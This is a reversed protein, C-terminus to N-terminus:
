ATLHVLAVNKVIIGKPMMAAYKVKYVAVQLLQYEVSGIVQDGLIADLKITPASCGRVADVCFTGVNALFQPEIM